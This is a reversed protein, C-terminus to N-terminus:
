PVPELLRLGLRRALWGSQWAREESFGSEYAAGLREAALGAAHAAVYAAGAHPVWGDEPDAAGLGGSREACAETFERASEANWAEVREVLRGRSAVLAQEGEVVWGGLEVTWLEQDLWYPLDRVRCAHIGRLSPVLSGKVTVWRDRPWRFGSLLGYAGLALFKYALV